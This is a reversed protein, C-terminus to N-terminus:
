SALDRESEVLAYLSEHDEACAPCGELHPQMGPVAVAADHGSLELEVYRDLQEFCEDCTLEPGAPGLLGGVLDTFPRPTSDSM